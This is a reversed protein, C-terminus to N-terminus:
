EKQLQGSMASYSTEAAQLEMNCALRYFGVNLKDTLELTKKMAEPDAPRYIQGLLPVIAEKKTIERIRNERGRELICIAKLPVSTNTNLNHKGCWPTGFVTATYERNSGETSKEPAIRVLPKDDNIMIARDGLLQRWLRAHTSKGTGSKAIFMYAEGDAAVASGHILFTDFYPMKEAIKRYVALTELYEDSFQRVPRGELHDGRASRARECDIDEQTISISLDPLSESKKGVYSGEPIQYDACMRYVYDHMASIEVCRGALAYHKAASKVAEEM